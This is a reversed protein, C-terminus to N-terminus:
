LPTFKATSMDTLSFARNAVEATEGQIIATRAAKAMAPQRCEAVDSVALELGLSAFTRSM